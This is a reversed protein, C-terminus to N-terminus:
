LTCCQSNPSITVFTLLKAAVPSGSSSPYVLASPLPRWRGHFSPVTGLETGGTEAQRPNIPATM